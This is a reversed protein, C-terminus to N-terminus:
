TPGTTWLVLVPRETNKSSPLLGELMLPWVTHSKARKERSWNTHGHTVSLVEKLGEKDQLEDKWRFLFIKVKVGQLYFCIKEKKTLPEITWSITTTRGSMVSFAETTPCILLTGTCVAWWLGLYTAAKTQKHSCNEWKHKRLNGYFLKITEKM